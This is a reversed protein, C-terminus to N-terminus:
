FREGIAFNIQNGGEDNFGWDIRIPGVPSQIRVGMGYGYGSGPKNREGAPNGPVTKGSGLDTAADLFLVGGLFSVIPFRYEITGQLYSRGSGMNGDNYGRVSNAGGLPFAEYPPLNGIVTGAQVNFAITQPGDSFNTWNVPFYQSYGGRLRNFLIGNSGTPITQEIGARFVHGQTPRLSDNRKDYSLGGQLLILNDVGSRNWALKHGYEDVPSVVGDADSIFVNQYQLGVSATWNATVFPNPALPRTFVIGGGTRVVRPSDGNPLYVEPDGGDFVTSIFRRRFLNINYSTRYPDGGIWPDSYNVDFLLGREGVQFETGLRQNNGGLNQEQYSVTGFLGAASSYGAGLAISGTNKEIINVIVRAKRPDQTGPELSLRADEFIGLGYVRRTDKQAINRNFVEGPKLQMERTIIYKRTRGKIPQGKADTSDGEKNLFRVDISEIIGEAVVLKVVGDEGVQPADLVQALVYGQDQYWKNIKKIGEEFNRLNLTKGYQDQFVEEVFGKPLMKDGEMIVKELVPNAQVTYTIRVGLPTDEPTAKVNKFYGTAFIANIDRQLQSRTTTRGPQTTIVRYVEEQLAGEVGSVLVEAVLVQPETESTGPPTPTAPQEPPSVDPTPSISPQPTPLSPSAQAIPASNEQPNTTNKRRNDVSLKESKIITQTLPESFKIPASKANKETIKEAEPQYSLASIQSNKAIVLSKKLDPFAQLKVSSDLSPSSEPNPTPNSASIQASLLESFSESKASTELSKAASDESSVTQSDASNSLGLLASVTLFTLLFVSLRM